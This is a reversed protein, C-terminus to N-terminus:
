CVLGFWVAKQYSLWQLIHDVPDDCDWTYAAASDVCSSRCPGKDHGTERQSKRAPQCNQWACTDGYYLVQPGKWPLTPLPYPWHVSSTHTAKVAAVGENGAGDRLLWMVLCRFLCTLELIPNYKLCLLRDQDDTVREQLSSTRFANRGVEMDIQKRSGLEGIKRM